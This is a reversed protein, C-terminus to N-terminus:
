DALGLVSHSNRDSYVELAREGTNEDLSFSGQEVLVDGREGQFRSFNFDGLGYLFDINKFEDQWRHLNGYEFTFARASEPHLLFDGDKNTIYLNMERPINDVSAKLLHDANVNIIIIGLPSGDANFLPTSFRWVPRDPHEIEGFERNLNFNSQYVHGVGVNLTQGIYPENKKSQLATKNFAELEEGVRQVKVREQWDHSAEIFRVQYLDKNSLMFAKFIDTLRENLLQSATTVKESNVGDAHLKKLALIPPTSALFLLDRRYQTVELNINSLASEKVKSLGDSTDQLHNQTIFWSSVLFILFILLLAFPCSLKFRLSKLFTLISQLGV